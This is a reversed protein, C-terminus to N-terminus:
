LFCFVTKITIWATFTIEGKVSVGMVPVALRSTHMRDYSVLNRIIRIYKILKDEIDGGM